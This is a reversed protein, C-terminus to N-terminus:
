NWIAGFATMAFGQTCIWLGPDTHMSDGDCPICLEGAVRHIFEHVIATRELSLRNKNIDTMGVVIDGDAFTIGAWKDNIRNTYCVRGSGIELEGYPMLGCKHFGQLAAELAMGTAALYNDDYECKWEGYDTKLTDKLVEVGHFTFNDKEKENQRCSLLIVVIGLFQMANKM